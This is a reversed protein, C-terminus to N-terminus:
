DVYDVIRIGSLDGDIWRLPYGWRAGDPQVFRCYKGIRQAIPMKILSNDDSVRRYQRETPNKKQRGDELTAYIPVPKRIEIAQNTRLVYCDEESVWGRKSTLTSRSKGIQILKKKKDRYFAFYRNWPQMISMVGAPFKMEPTKFICIDPCNAVIRIPMGNESELFGEPATRTVTPWLIPYNERTGLSDGGGPGLNVIISPNAYVWGAFILVCVLVLFGAIRSVRKYFIGTLGHWMALAAYCGFILYESFGGTRYWIFGIVATLVFSHQFANWIGVCLNSLRAFIFENLFWTMQMLIWFIAMLGGISGAPTWLWRHVYKVFDLSFFTSIDTPCFFMVACIGIGAILISLLGFRVGIGKPGFKLLSCLGGLIGVIGIPLLYILFSLDSILLISFSSICGILFTQAVVYQAFRDPKMNPNLIYKQLKLQEDMSLKGFPCNLSQGNKSLSLTIFLKQMWLTYAVMITLLAGSIIIKTVM